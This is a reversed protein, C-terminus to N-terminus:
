AHEFCTGLRFDDAFTARDVPREVGVRQKAEQAKIDFGYRGLEVWLCYVATILALLTCGLFVTFVTNTRRGKWLVYPVFCVGLLYVATSIYVVAFWFLAFLAAPVAVLAAAEAYLPLKSPPKEAEPQEPATEAPGAEEAPSEEAGQAPEGTEAEAEELPRVEEAAGEARASEDEFVLQEAEPPEGSSNLGEVEAAEGATTLEDDIDSKKVEDDAVM